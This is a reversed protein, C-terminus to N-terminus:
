REKECRDIFEQALAMYAKSGKNAKDYVVGPLGHSPAESLRVSRPIVTQYVKDNLHKRLENAVPPECFFGLMMCAGALAGCLTQCGYGGAALAMTKAPIVNYPYGYEEALLEMIGAVAGGGCGGVEYWRKYTYELAKQKDIPHWTWPWQPVEPSEALAPMVFGAAAAGAAGLGLGKLFTRRDMEKNMM